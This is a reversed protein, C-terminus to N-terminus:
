SPRRRQFWRGLVMLVAYVMLIHILGGFMYGKVLGLVWFGILLFVIAWM